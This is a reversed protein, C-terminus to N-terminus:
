TERRPGFARVTAGPDLGLHVRDGEALSFRTAVEVSGGADLRVGLFSEAGRFRREAVTGPLGHEGLVWQEPRVFLEVADGEAVVASAEFPWALHRAADPRAAGGGISGPLFAGRGIFRAVFPTAPERYLQEPTAVQELRGRHLVAVRDGLDFAEDQEHTVVVATIGIERLLARLNARTRERLEPDLNSLPEDFLVVRPRPALARAVAVRQQQGGSLADVPRAALGRLEVLDLVEEVRQARAARDLRGALGFAVNGAVDLHPFLAYHQFVMGVDREAPPLRTVNRGAIAITGADPADFGALCRLLTTKGSGSPGLLVLVEGEEIELSIHDLVTLAGYRRTVRDLAVFAASEM